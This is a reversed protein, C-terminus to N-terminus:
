SALLAAELELAKPFLINNEIHIHLHLDQEFEELKAYLARFTNCAGPPPTYNGTLQAIRKFADGVNDHEIQMVSIPGDLSGCHEPPVGQPDQHAEVLTNIFPFLVQEEKHMHDGLEDAIQGLLQNAEIIEPHNQGHVQEVRAAYQLVLPIASSVYPHHTKLLHDVLQELSWSDYDDEVRVQQDVGELEAIVTKLEVGQKQCAQAVSIGGGCCFDIGHQKFIHATKINKSVISAVTESSLESM